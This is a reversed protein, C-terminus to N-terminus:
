VADYGRAILDLKQTLRTWILDMETMVGGKEARKLARNELAAGIYDGLKGGCWLGALAAMAIFMIPIRVYHLFHLIYNVMAFFVVTGLICGVIKAITRVETAAAAARELGAVRCEASIGYSVFTRREGGVFAANQGYQTELNLACSRTKLTAVLRGSPNSNLECKLEGYGNAMALAAEKVKADLITKHTLGSELGECPIRLTKRYAQLPEDM